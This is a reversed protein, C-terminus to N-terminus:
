NGELAKSIRSAERQISAADMGFAKLITKETKTVAHDLSYCGNGMRIIEIKELESIAATVNMYNPRTEIKGVEDLLSAESSQVGLTANDMFSKDMRFLKESADRSKYITIADKASMEKSTVICFYGCYKLEDNIVDAREELGSLVQDEQGENDYVPSFYRLYDPDIDKAKGFTKELAIRAKEIRHEIESLEQAYKASSFYLHFYRNGTDDDFLKDEVTIGYVNFPRIHNEWKDEFTKRNKDIIQRVLSKRGKVMMIFEYGNRDMYHINGKSFYGRDLIFGCNTYGLSKAKELMCQLQTVDVVSGPYDEYFLPIRNTRDYAISYNIVPFNKGDKAHGPEAEEIDGAQVDKNTSDYSIYIKESHDRKENWANIFQIRQDVSIGKLFDGVTSDSYVQMGETM